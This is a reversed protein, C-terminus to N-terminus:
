PRMDLVWKRVLTLELWSLIKALHKNFLLKDCDQPKIKDLLLYVDIFVEGSVKDEM